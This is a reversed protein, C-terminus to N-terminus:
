QKVSAAVGLSLLNFPKHGNGSFNLKLGSSHGGKTTFQHEGNIREKNQLTKGFKTNRNNITVNCDGSDRLYLSVKSPRKIAGPEGIETIETPEIEFDYQIGIFVQDDFGTAYISASTDLVFLGSTPSVSWHTNKTLMVDGLVACLGKAQPAPIIAGYYAVSVPVSVQNDLYVAM